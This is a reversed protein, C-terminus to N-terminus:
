GTEAVKFIVNEPQVFRVYVILGQTNRYVMAPKEPDRTEELKPTFQAKIQELTLGIPKEVM